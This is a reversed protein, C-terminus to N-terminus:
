LHLRQAVKPFVSKLSVFYYDIWGNAPSVADAGTGLQIYNGPPSIKYIFLMIHSYIIAFGAAGILILSFRSRSSAFFQAPKVCSAYFGLFAAFELFPYFEMRYRFAMYMFTLILFVPTLFGITLAAVARLDLLGERRLRPLRLLFTGGLVLLLPDSLLFSSPPTEVADLVRTEFEAFLFRGDPRMITWIPLFYYLVGYWLREINFAGYAELRALRAPANMYLIYIHPDYYFELPNGWRQYNVIGALMVFGVPIALGFVTRTSVLGRVFGALRDRLSGARPWALVLVLLGTAFYLGLATSARTLLALGALTAMVAILRASFERKAILGRIACYIFAASIAGAWAITEQYISGRLFQIQAGGLLLSLVIVIFAVAQLRNKPLRDNILAVSALKFCLAVTAALACYLGTVDLWALAGTPVLPLRLLAPVIGFYAYTKGNRVSGEFAIAAPDVDFEGHLLHELMSNFVMGRASGELPKAFNLSGDMALFLYYIAAAFILIIYLLVLLSRSDRHAPHASIMVM